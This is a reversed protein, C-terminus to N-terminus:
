PLPKRTFFPVPVAVAPPGLHKFICSTASGTGKKMPGSPSVLAYVAVELVKTDAVDTEIRIKANVRGEIQGATFTISLLHVKKATRPTTCRFRPDNSEVALIRFPEKRSVVLPRTVTQGAAVVGVSLSQAFVIGPTVRGEVAVPVRSSRTSPDNTVLILQDRFYGVPATKKLKVELNYGVRGGGRASEVARAELHPNTSQVKEIRWDGRGAYDITAKQSAGSGQVVSGFCVSEPQVVIDGRIRCHVHLQVEAPFPKDFIVTLTADKQGVFTRTDVVAVIETKEWTKLRSKSIRPTICRCGYRVASINADEVYINEVTFRHETKAGRATVGFDHTTQDFMRQAWDQGSTPQHRNDAASGDPPTSLLACCIVISAYM